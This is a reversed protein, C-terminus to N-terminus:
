FVICEVPTGSSLPAQAPIHALANAAAFTALAHSEQLGAPSFTGALPDWRGRVYCPRQDRNECPTALIAQLRQPGFDAERAGALCRLAPIVFLISTVAASVPNGPLGFVTKSGKQAFLFPKGPKVAVRWFELPVELAQLAPKVLDHEGVSVGGVILITDCIGLLHKLATQIANLDDPAHQTHIELMPLAEYLLAALMLGNSDYIQGPELPQGPACLEDGTTLIGVKPMQGVGIETLGQSALLAVKRATIREGQELILQGRCLDGGVPRLFEGVGAAETIAVQGGPLTRCDEQMIVAATDQPLPAGTFIRVAQGPAVRLGRNVGAPQTGIVRLTGCLGCDAEHLAYGDM